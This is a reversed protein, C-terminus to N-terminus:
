AARAKQKLQEFWLDQALKQYRWAQEKSAKGQFYSFKSASYWLYLRVAEQQQSRLASIESM